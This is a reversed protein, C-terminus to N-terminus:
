LKISLLKAHVLMMVMLKNEKKLVALQNNYSLLEDDVEKLTGVYCEEDFYDAQSIAFWNM